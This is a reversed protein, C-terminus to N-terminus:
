GVSRPKEVKAKEIATSLKAEEDALLRALTQRKTEDTEAALAERLHEVNLRAVFREMVPERKPFSVDSGTRHM